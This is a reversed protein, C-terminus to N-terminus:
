RTKKEKKPTGVINIHKHSQKKFDQEQAFETKQPKREAESRQPRRDQQGRRGGAGSSGSRRQRGGQRADKRQPRERRDQKKRERPQREGSKTQKESRRDSNKPSYQKKAPTQQPAVKKEDFFLAIKAPKTSMGLFNYEAEELIKVTFEQPKGARQWGKDVAKIVSSAEEM